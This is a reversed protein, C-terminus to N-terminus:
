KWRKAVVTRAYNEFSEGTAGDRNDGVEAPGAINNMGLDSVLHRERILVIENRVHFPHQGLEHVIAVKDLAQSLL